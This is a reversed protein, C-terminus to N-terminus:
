AARALTVQKHYLTEVNRFCHGQDHRLRALLRHNCDRVGGDAELRRAWEGIADAFAPIDGPPAVWAHSLPLRLLDRNGPADGLILPLGASLAELLALSFGEYRSTLIFGDVAQYFDAPTALYPLRTVHERLDLEDILREVEADLEGEGVHFLHIDPRTARAAAFARYLTLPDKQASARGMSGLILADEPLGLRLRLARRATPDPAPAFRDTDVGNPMTWVRDSPLGLRGLAHRLEDESCVLTTSWRGLVREVADYAFDLRGRQPRMGIYAHPHYIIPAGGAGGLLPLLHALVGAKASHAHILDPALDRVFSRLSRLAVLDAASPRNSVRLNLTRGGQGEIRAVLRFLAESGRRDSYALHVSHGSALLHGALAEVYRFVGNVGPETVLLINM